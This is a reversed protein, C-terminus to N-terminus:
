FRLTTNNDSTHILRASSHDQSWSINVNLPVKIAKSRLDVGPVEHRQPEWSDKSTPEKKLAGFRGFRVRHDSYQLKITTSAYISSDSVYQTWGFAREVYGHTERGEKESGSFTEGGISFGLRDEILQHSAPSKCPQLLTSSNFVRSLPHM